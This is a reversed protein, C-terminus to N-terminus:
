VAYSIKVHGSNLRTSKRDESRLDDRKRVGGRLTGRQAIHLRGHPGAVRLHLARLDATALRARAGAKEEEDGRRRPAPAAGGRGSRFLTTYPFLPARPPRACL